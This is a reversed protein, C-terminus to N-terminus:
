WAGYSTDEGIVIHPIWASSTNKVSEQFIKHEIEKATGVKDGKVVLLNSAGKGCPKYFLKILRGKESPCYSACLRFLARVFFAKIHYNELIKLRLFKVLMFYASCIPKFHDLLEAKKNIITCFCSFNKLFPLFIVNRQRFQCIKPSFNNVFAKFHALM